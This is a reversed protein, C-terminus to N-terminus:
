KSAKEAVPDVVPKEDEILLEFCHAHCEYLRKKITIKAHKEHDKTGISIDRLCVVKVTDESQSAM